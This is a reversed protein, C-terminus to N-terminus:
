VTAINYKDSDFRLVCVLFSQVAFVLKGLEGGPYSNSHLYPRASFNQLSPHSASM